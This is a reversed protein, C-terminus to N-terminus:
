KYTEQEKLKKRFLDAYRRNFEINADVEQESFESLIENEIGFLMFVSKAVSTEGRETLVVTKERGNKNELYIIGDNELKRIASNITQKSTGTQKYISSLDCRGGNECISYLIIIASDSLGSKVAFQHYLNDIENMLKNLRRIKDSLVYKM